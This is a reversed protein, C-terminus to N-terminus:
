MYVCMASASKYCVQNVAAPLCSCPAVAPRLRLATDGGEGAVQGQSHDSSWRKPAETRGFRGAGGRGLLFLSFLWVTGGSDSACLGCVGRILFASPLLQRPLPAEAVAPAAHSAAPHICTHFPQACDWDLGGHIRREPQSGSHMHVCARRCHWHCGMCASSSLCSLFQAEAACGVCQPVCPGTCLDPQPPVVTLCAFLCVFHQHM